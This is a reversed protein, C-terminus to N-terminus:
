EKDVDTAGSALLLWELSGSPFPSDKAIVAIKLKSANEIKADWWFWHRESPQFWFVFASISWKSNLRIREELPLLLRLQAEEQSIEEASRQVFWEPLLSRWDDARLNKANNTLIIDLVEKCRSLVDVADRMCYITFETIYWGDLRETSSPGDRLRRLEDQNTM